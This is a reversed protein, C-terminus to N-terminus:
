SYSVRPDVFAYLIDALLQGALVLVSFVLTLGMITPYDRVLISQFFLRGMGPWVFIQELIVSGSLLAPLTLGILTVLPILANRFAHHIIVTHEAVGKARATRIYDQRIVEMMNARIFRSYYALSAYTYCAVPMVAHKFLDWAKGAATLDAYNDGVMGFLPLLDLRVALFIQMYLAAVFAPLSYLVYLFTSITREDAHGARVTAYLGLPISLLYTILLSSVSLLLTPGIREAILSAVPRKEKISRGLDLQPLKFLWSVYAQPWPKDLGFSKRMREIEQQVVKYQLNGTETAGGIMLQVPDGPMNRVLAFVVFTILLLTISALLLRRILYHLM